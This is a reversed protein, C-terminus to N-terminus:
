QTFTNNGSSHLQHDEGDDAGHPPVRLNDKAECRYNLLFLWLWPPSCFFSGFSGCLPFVWVFRPCTTELSVSFLSFQTLLSAAAASRQERQGWLTLGCGPSTRSCVERSGSILRVRDDPISLWWTPHSPAWSQVCWQSENHGSQQQISQKRKRIIYRWCWWM